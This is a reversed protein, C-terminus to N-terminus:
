QLVSSQEEYKKLSKELGDLVKKAIKRPNKKKFSSFQELADSGVEQLGVPNKDFEYSGVVFELKSRLEQLEDTELKDIAEISEICAKKLNENEKTEGIM